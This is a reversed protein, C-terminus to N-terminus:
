RKRSARIREEYLKLRQHNQENMEYLSPDQQYTYSNSRNVAASDIEPSLARDSTSPANEYGDHGVGYSPPADTPTPPATEYGAYGTGFAAPSTVPASPATEYGAHGTGYSTPADTPAPPATEYGAYGTGSATPVASTSSRYVQRVREEYDLDVVKDDSFEPLAEVQAKSLNIAYVRHADHDIRSRGIPLLVKKGFIWLGINVVLYRFRGDDDVLLDDVSGVKDDEAYLDFGRIDEQSNQDHYSDYFDKIKHLAM